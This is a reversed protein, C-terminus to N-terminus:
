LPWPPDSVTPSEPAAATNGPVIVAEGVLTANGSVFMPAVLGTLVTVKVFVPPLLKLPMVAVDEELSITTVCLQGTLRATLAEQVALRVNAGEVVPARVPLREKFQVPAETGRAMPILPLPIPTGSTVSEAVLAENGAVSTPCCDAACATVTVLEPVPVRATDVTTSEEGSKECLLLQPNLM